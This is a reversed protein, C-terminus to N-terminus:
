NNKSYKQGGIIMVVVGLIVITTIILVGYHEKINTFELLTGSFIILAGIAVLYRKMMSSLSDIDIKEKEAKSLTNYGAILDPNWKVLFGCVILIIGIVFTATLM